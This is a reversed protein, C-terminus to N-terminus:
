FGCIDLVQMKVIEPAGCDGHKGLCATRVGFYGAYCPM